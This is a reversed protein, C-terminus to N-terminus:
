RIFPLGADTVEQDVIENANQSRVGVEDCKFRGNNVNESLTQM